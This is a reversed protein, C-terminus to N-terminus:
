IELNNINLFDANEIKTGPLGIPVLYEPKKWSHDPGSAPAGLIVAGPAGGGKVEKGINDKFLKVKKDIANESLVRGLEEKIIQKLRQKTLKM